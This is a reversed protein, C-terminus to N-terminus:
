PLPFPLGGGGGSAPGVRTPREGLEVDVTETEGGRVFEIEVTDGPQNDEIAAAVDASETIEAGDVTVIIDGGAVLGQATETNGAELGAKDAPGDPVVDQVLAGQNTELNFDQAITETLDTTTVGLFAREVEGDEKLQPIIEKATDIPVAFGIGVSGSAGGTAIQSNIGIVRGRADLLPGGSNGPNISADTQIVNDISFGNPATIERQIASVIGTTVTSEFGFPSGIAVVPNGVDASGSEGLPIPQLEVEDPDVKLVALDSSLDAGVIEAPVQEDGGFTITVDKAGDVVHANTLIFGEGDLVFGTGSATGGREPPLGFPSEGTTGQAEVFVVGPSVRDYIENVTLGEDGGSEDSAPQTLPQPTLATGESDGSTGIAGTAILVVAVIAVLLGGALGALVNSIRSSRTM